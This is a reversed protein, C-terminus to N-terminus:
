PRWVIKQSIETMSSSMTLSSAQIRSIHTCLLHMNRLRVPKASETINCPRIIAEPNIHVTSRTNYKLM